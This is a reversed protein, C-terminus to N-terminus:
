GFWFYHYPHNSKKKEKKTNGTHWVALTWLYLSSYFVSAERIAWTSLNLCIVTNVAAM